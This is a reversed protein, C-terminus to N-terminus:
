PNLQDSGRLSSRKFSSNEAVIERSPSSRFSMFADFNESACFANMTLSTQVVGAKLKGAQLELAAPRRD